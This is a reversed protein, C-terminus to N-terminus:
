QGLAHRVKAVYAGHPFRRLYDEFTARAASSDLKSECAARDYLAREALPGESTKGGAHAFDELARTCRGSEARLEGRLIQLESAGSLDMRDLEALAASHNGLILEARVRTAKAETALEGAVFHQDYRDLAVLAAKGDGSNLARLAPLLLEAEASPEKKAYPRPTARVTTERQEVVSSAPRALNAREADSLVRLKHDELVTGEGIELPQMSSSWVVEASGSYCAIQTHFDRVTLEVRAHPHVQVIGDPLAISIALRDTEVWMRGESLTRMATTAAAPTPAPVARLVAARHPRALLLAAMAVAGLGLALTPWYIRRVPPQLLAREIRALTASPLEAPEPLRLLSRKLLQDRAGLLEAPTDILRNPLGDPLGNSTTEM